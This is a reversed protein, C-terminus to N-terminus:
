YKAPMTPIPVHAMIKEWTHEECNIKSTYEFIQAVALAAVM